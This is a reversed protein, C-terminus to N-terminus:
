GNSRALDGGCDGSQKSFVIMLCKRLASNRNCIGQGTAWFIGSSKAGFRSVVSANASAFTLCSIVTVVQEYRAHGYGRGIHRRSQAASYCDAGVAGKAGKDVIHIM